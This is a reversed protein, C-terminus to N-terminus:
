EESWYDECGLGARTLKEERYKLDEIYDQNFQRHSQWGALYGRDYGANNAIKACVWVLILVLLGAGAWIFWPAVPIEFTIM